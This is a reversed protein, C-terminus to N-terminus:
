DYHYILQLVMHTVIVNFLMDTPAPKLSRPWRWREIGLTHARECSMLCAPHGLTSVIDPTPSRRLGHRLKLVRSGVDLLCCFELLRDVFNWCAGTATSGQELLQSAQLSRLLCILLPFSLLPCCLHLSSLHPHGHAGMELFRINQSRAGATSGHM